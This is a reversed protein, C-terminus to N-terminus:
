FKLLLALHAFSNMGQEDLSDRVRNLLGANHEIGRSFRYFVDVVVQDLLEDAEPPVPVGEGSTLLDLRPHSFFLFRLVALRLFLSRVHDSPAPASTYWEGFWFNRAYNEFYRDIRAGYGALLADRRALYRELMHGSDVRTVGDGRSLSFTTNGQEDNYTSWAALLLERFATRADGLRALLVTQIVTLPLKVDVQVAAFQRDLEDLFGPTGLRDVEGALREPPVADAGAHLVDSLRNAFYASFFLRSELSYQRAGLLELMVQRVEDLYQDYARAPQEPLLAHLRPERGFQAPEVSMLDCADDALLCLRAVEPCSLMGAVEMRRGNLSHRRPYTLCVWGLHSEGFRGQIECLREGDLFTCLGDERLKVTAYSADPNAASRNRRLRERFVERDGKSGDMAKKLRKYSAHDLDVNWSHCCNDECAGGICRFADMYRPMVWAEDQARTAPSGSM